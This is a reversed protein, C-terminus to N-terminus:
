PLPSEQRTEHDDDGIKVTNSSATAKPGWALVSEVSEVPKVPAPPYKTGEIREILEPRPKPPNVAAVVPEVGTTKIISTDSQDVDPTSPPNVTAGGNPEKKAFQSPPAVQRVHALWLAGATVGVVVLALASALAPRMALAGLAAAAYDRLRALFPRGDADRDPQPGRAIEASVAAWLTPSVELGRDYRAYVEQEFRLADLAAACDACTALHAGMLHATRADTEGDFYEELLPLCDECKM